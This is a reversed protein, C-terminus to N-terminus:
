PEDEHWPLEVDHLEIQRLMVQQTKQVARIERTRDDWTAQIQLCAAEIDAPTPDRQRKPKARLKRDHRLPLEWVDRLRIVQDKSITYRQCLLVIPTHSIWDARFREISITATNGAAM